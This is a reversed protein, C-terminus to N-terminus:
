QTQKKCCVIALASPTVDAFTIATIPMAFFGQAVVGRMCHEVKKPPNTTGGGNM